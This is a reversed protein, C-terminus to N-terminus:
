ILLPTTQGMCTSCNVWVTLAFVEIEMWWTPLSGQNNAQLHQHILLTLISPSLTCVLGTEHLWGPWPRGHWTTHPFAASKAQLNLCGAAPIDESWGAFRQRQTQSSAFCTPSTAVLTSTSGKTRRIKISILPTEVRLLFMRESARDPLGHLLTKGYRRFLWSVLVIWSKHPFPASTRQSREHAM